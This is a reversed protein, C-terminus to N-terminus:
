LSDHGDDGGYLEGYCKPCLLIWGALRHQAGRMTKKPTWKKCRPCPTPLERDLWNLFRDLM